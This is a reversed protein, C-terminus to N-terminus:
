ENGEEKHISKLLDEIHQSYEAGHDSYFRLHPIFKLSLQGLEHRLFGEAANLAKVCEAKHEETGIVSVYVKANRCDNSLVVDSISCLSLRPDKMKQFLVQSLEERLLDSLRQVRRKSM